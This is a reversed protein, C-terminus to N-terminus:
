HASATAAADPSKWDSAAAPAGDILREM